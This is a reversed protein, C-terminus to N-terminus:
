NIGNAPKERDGTSLQKRVEAVSTFLFGPAEFVKM